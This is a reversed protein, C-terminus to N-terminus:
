GGGVESDIEKDAVDLQTRGQGESQERSWGEKERMAGHM